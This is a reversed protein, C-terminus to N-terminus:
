GALLQGDCSLINGRVPKVEVSDRTLRSAVKAWYDRQVTATYTAKAVVCIGLLVMIYAIGKYRAIITKKEYLSSM